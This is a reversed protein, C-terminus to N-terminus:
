LRPPETVAMLHSAVGAAVVGGSCLALVHGSGARAIACAAELAEAIEQAYTDVNWGRHRADPNRWSIAFVQQGQRVCYEILSRGPALDLIYYKNILPPVILLPVSRVQETQPRYQILEFAETRHVVAGPTAALSEGVTFASSDVMAPLPPPPPPEALNRAGRLLNAGGEDVTAKIAAPNSWLFNTPALADMLNDGA